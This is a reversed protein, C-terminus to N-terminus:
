SLPPLTALLGAVDIGRLAAVVGAWVALNLLVMCVVAVRLRRQVIKRRKRAKFGTAYLATAM